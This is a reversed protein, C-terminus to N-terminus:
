LNQCITRCRCNIPKILRNQGGFTHKFFLISLKRVKIYLFELKTNKTWHYYSFFFILVARDAWDAFTLLLVLNMQTNFIYYKLYMVKIPHQIRLLAYCFITDVKGEVRM